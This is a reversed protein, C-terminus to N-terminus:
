QGLSTFHAFSGVEPARRRQVRATAVLELPKVTVRGHGSDLAHQRAEAVTAFPAVITDRTADLYSYM